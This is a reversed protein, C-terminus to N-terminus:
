CLYVEVFSRTEQLPFWVLIALPVKCPCAEGELDNFSLNLSKLLKFDGLFEPIQGSILNNYSLDLAYLARLSSLSKPIFGEFVNEGLDLVGFKHLQWSWPSDRM